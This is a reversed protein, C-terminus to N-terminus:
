ICPIIVWLPIWKPSGPIITLRHIIIIIIRVKEKKDKKFEKGM